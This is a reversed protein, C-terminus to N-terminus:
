AAESRFQQKLTRSHRIPLDFKAKAIDVGVINQTM